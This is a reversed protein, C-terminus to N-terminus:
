GILSSPVVVLPYPAEVQLVEDGSAMLEDVYVGDRLQWAAISPGALDVVWYSAM